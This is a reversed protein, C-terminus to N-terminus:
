QFILDLQQTEQLFASTVTIRDRVRREFAGPVGIELRAYGAYVGFTRRSIPDALDQEYRDTGVVTGSIDYPGYNFVMQPLRIVIIITYDQFIMPSQPYTWATFSGRSVSYDPIYLGPAPSPTASASSSMVPTPTSQPFVSPQATNSAKTTQKADLSTKPAPSAPPASSPTPNSPGPTSGKFSNKPRCGGAVSLALASILAVAKLSQIM